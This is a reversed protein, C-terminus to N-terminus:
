GGWVERKRYALARFVIMGIERVEAANNKNVGMVDRHGGGGYKQALDALNIPEKVEKWPNKGAGIQYDGNWGTISICYDLDPRLYFPAYKDKGVYKTTPRTLDLYATNNHITMIKPYAKLIKEVKKQRKEWIKRYDEAVKELDGQYNLIKKLVEVINVERDMLVQRIKLAPEKSLIVQEASVYSASDIIEAWKCLDKWPSPDWSTHLSIFYDYLLGACSKRSPDFRVIKTNKSEKEFRGRGTDHHDFWGLSTPNYKFDVVFSNKALNKDEWDVIDYNAANFKIAKKKNRNLFSYLLVASAIGDTDNHFHIHVM